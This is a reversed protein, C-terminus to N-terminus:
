PRVPCTETIDTFYVAFQSASRNEATVKVIEIFYYHDKEKFKFAEVGDIKKCNLAKDFMSKLTDQKNDSFLDVLKVGKRVGLSKIQNWESFSKNFFMLKQEDDVVCICKSTSDLLQRFNKERAETLKQTKQLKEQALALQELNQKLEEENARMNESNIRAEQLLQRTKRNNELGLLTAAISECAKECFQIEHDEFDAFSAIELAGTIKDGTKLPIILLKDPTAQGLGSTIRTYGQPLNHIKLLKGEKVSQSVLGQGYPLERKEYKRKEYAWAGALELYPKDEINHKLLFLGGQNAKLYQVMFTTIRYGLEQIDAQQNGLISAVDALGNSIWLQKEDESAFKKLNDKMGLLAHGMEDNSSRLQLSADFNGKGIQSAFHSIHELYDRLINVREILEATERGFPASLRPANEGKAIQQMTASVMKVPKIFSRWLLSYGIYGGAFIACMSFIYCLAIKSRTHQIAHHVLLQAREHKNLLSNLEIILGEIAFSINKDTNETKLDLDAKLFFKQWNKAMDALTESAPGDPMNKLLTIQQGAQRLQEKLRMKEVPQSHGSYRTAQLQVAKLQLQSSYLQQQLQYFQQQRNQFFQICAMSCLLLLAMLFFYLLVQRRLGNSLFKM